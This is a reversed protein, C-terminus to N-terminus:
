WAPLTPTLAGKAFRIWILKSLTQKQTLKVLGQHAFCGSTDEAKDEVQLTNSQLLSQPNSEEHRYQKFQYGDYRNLGDDTGVWLFGRSDQFICSIFNSCLGDEVSFRDFAMRLPPQKQADFTDSVEKLAHALNKPLTKQKSCSFLWVGLLLHLFVAPYYIIAGLSNTKSM